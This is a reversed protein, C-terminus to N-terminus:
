SAEEDSAAETLGLDERAIRRAFWMLDEVRCHEVPHIAAVRDVVVDVHAIGFMSAVFAELQARKGDAQATAEAGALDPWWKTIASPSPPGWTPHRERYRRVRAAIEDASPPSKLTRLEKAAANLAGRASKTLADVNWGLALALADRVQTHTPLAPGLLTEESASADSASALPGNVSLEPGSPTRQVAGEKASSRVSKTRQVAGEQEQSHASSRVSEGRSQTRQVAGEKVDLQDLEALRALDFAYEARQGTHGAKTQRIIGDQILSDVHDFIQRRALETYAQLRAEGPFAETGDAKACEALALAVIKRGKPPGIKARFVAATIQWAM